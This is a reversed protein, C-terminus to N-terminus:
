VGRLSPTNPTSTRSWANNVEANSPTSHDVERGPRKIRPYFSRAGVPSSPFMVNSPLIIRYSPFIFSFTTLHQRWNTM